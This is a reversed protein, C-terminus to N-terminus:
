LTAIRWGVQPEITVRVQFCVRFPVGIVTLDVM